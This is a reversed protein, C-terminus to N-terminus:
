ASPTMAKKSLRVGVKLPLSHRRHRDAILLAGFFAGFRHPRRVVRRFPEAHAQFRDTGTRRGQRERDDIRLGVAVIDAMAAHNEREGIRGEGRSVVESSAGNDSAFIIITNDLRDIAAITADSANMSGTAVGGLAMTNPEPRMVTGCIARVPKPSFMMPITTTVSAVSSSPSKM